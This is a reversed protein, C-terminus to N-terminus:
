PGIVHRTEARASIRWTILGKFVQLWSQSSFQFRQSSLFLETLNPWTVEFRVKWNDQPYLSHVPKLMCFVAM